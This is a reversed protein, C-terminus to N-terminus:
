GLAARCCSRRSARPSHRRPVCPDHLLARVVQRQGHRGVEALPDRGAGAVGGLRARELHPRVVRVVVDDALDGPRHEGLHAGGGGRLRRPGEEVLDEDREGVEVVGGLLRGLARVFELVAEALGLLAGLVEGVPQLVGLVAAALQGAADAFSSVPAPSRSLPAWCTASPVWCSASLTLPTPRFARGYRLSLPLVMPPSPSAGRRSSGASVRCGRGVDDFGAGAAAVAPVRWAESSAPRGRGAASRPGSVVPPAPRGSASRRGLLRHGVARRGKGLVDVGEDLVLATVELLEVLAESVELGLGLVQGFAGCRESRGPSATASM